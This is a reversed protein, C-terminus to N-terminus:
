EGTVESIDPKITELYRNFHAVDNVLRNVTSKADATEPELGDLGANILGLDAELREFGERIQGVPDLPTLLMYGNETLITEQIQTKM